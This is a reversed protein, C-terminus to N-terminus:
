SLVSGYKGTQKQDLVTTGFVDFSWRNIETIQM